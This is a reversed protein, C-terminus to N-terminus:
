YLKEAVCVCYGTGEGDRGESGPVPAGGLRQITHSVLTECRQITHSVLITDSVIGPDSVLVEHQLVLGLPCKTCTVLNADM